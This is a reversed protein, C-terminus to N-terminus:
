QGDLGWLWGWLPFYLCGWVLVGPSPILSAILLRLGPEPFSCFSDRPKRAALASLPLSLRRGENPNGFFPVERPSRPVQVISHCIACLAEGKIFCSELLLMDGSRGGGALTVAPYFEISM